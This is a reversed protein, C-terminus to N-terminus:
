TMSKIAPFIVVEDFAVIESSDKREVKRSRAHFCYRLFQNFQSVTIKWTSKFGTLVTELRNPRIEQVGTATARMMCRVCKYDLAICSQLVADPKCESAARWVCRSSYISNLALNPPRENALFYTSLERRTESQMWQDCSHILKRVKKSGKRLKIISIQIQSIKLFTKFVLWSDCRAYAWLTTRKFFFVTWFVRVVSIVIFTCYKSYFFMTHQSVRRAELNLFICYAYTCHHSLREFYLCKEVDNCRTCYYLVTRLLVRFSLFHSLFSHLVGGHKYQIM